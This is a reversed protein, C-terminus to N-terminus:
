KAVVVIRTATTTEGQKIGRVRVRDATKIDGAAIKDKGRRIKTTDALLYTATFGDLSIVTVSTHDVTTVTGRQFVVVRAQKGGLTAEGHLARSALDRKKRDDAKPLPTAQTSPSASSTPSASPTPSSSPDASAIGVGVGGALAITSIGAAIIKTTKRM